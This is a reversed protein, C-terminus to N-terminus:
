KLKTFNVFTLFVVSMSVDTELGELRTDIEIWGDYMINVDNVSKLTLDEDDLLATISQIPKMPNNKDLWEKSLLCVQAGTDYLCSPRTEDLSWDVMCCKGVLKSVAAQEGVSLMPYMEAEM